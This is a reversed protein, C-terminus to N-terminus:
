PRVVTRALVEDVKRSIEALSRKQEVFEAKFWERDAELKIVRDDIADDVVAGARQVASVEDRSARTQVYGVGVAVALTAAVIFAIIKHIPEVRAAAREIPGPSQGVMPPRQPAPM